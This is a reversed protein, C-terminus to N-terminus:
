NKNALISSRNKKNVSKALKYIDQKEKKISALPKALRLIPAYGM